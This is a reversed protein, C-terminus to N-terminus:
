LLDSIGATISETTLAKVGQKILVAAAAGVTEVVTGISPELPMAALAVTVAAKLSAM